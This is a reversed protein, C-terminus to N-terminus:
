YSKIVDADLFETIFPMVYRWAVDYVFTRSYKQIRKPEKNLSKKDFILGRTMNKSFIIYLTDDSFHGKREYVFPYEHPYKDNIWKACVQLEVFKYKCEPLELIMDEAYIDPNDRINNGLIKKMIERAPIDYKDYLKQDFKKIKGKLVVYKKKINEEKKIVEEKKANDEKKIVEEKKAVEVTETM